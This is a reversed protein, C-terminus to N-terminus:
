YAISIDWKYESSRQLRSSMFLEILVMGLMTISDFVNRESNIIGSSDELLSNLPTSLWNHFWCLHFIFSSLDDKGSNLSISIGSVSKNL